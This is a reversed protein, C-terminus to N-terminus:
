IQIRDFSIGMMKSIEVPIPVGFIGPTGRTDIECDYCWILKGWESWEINHGECQDCQISYQYPPQVYIWKRKPWSLRYPKM